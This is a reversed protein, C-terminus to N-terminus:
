CARRARHVPARPRRRARRRRAPSATHRRRSPRRGAAPPLRRPRQRAPARGSRRGSRRAGRRRSPARRGGRRRPSTLAHACYRHAGCAPTYAYILIAFGEWIPLAKTGSRVKQRGVQPAFSRRNQFIQAAHFGSPALDAESSIMCRGRAIGGGQPSPMAAAVGRRILHADFACPIGALINCLCEAQRIDIRMWKGRIKVASAPWFHDHFFQCEIQFSKKQM